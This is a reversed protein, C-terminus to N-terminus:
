RAQRRLARGCGTAQTTSPRDVPCRVTGVDLLNQHGGELWAVDHNHVIEATVFPLTHSIGNASSAGAHKGVARGCDLGIPCTHPLSFANNRSAASRGTSAVKRM